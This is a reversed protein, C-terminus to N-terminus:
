EKFSFFLEIKKQTDIEHTFKICYLYSELKTTQINKFHFTALLEIANEHYSVKIPQEKIAGKLEHVIQNCALVIQKTDWFGPPMALADNKAYIYPGMLLMLGAKSWIYAYHKPLKFNEYAAALEQEKNLLYDPKNFYKRKKFDNITKLGEPAKKENYGVHYMDIYVDQNVIDDESYINYIDTMNGYFGKISGKRLHLLEQGDPGVLKMLYNDVGDFDDCRVPNNKSGLPYKLNKNM